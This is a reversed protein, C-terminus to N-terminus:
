DEWESQSSDDSSSYRKLKGLKEIEFHLQSELNGAVSKTTSRSVPKLVQQINQIGQISKMLSSHSDSDAKPPIMFNPLVPPPPPLSNAAKAVPIPPKPLPMQPNSNPSKLAQFKSMASLVKSSKPKLPPPPPSDHSLPEIEIFNSTSLQNTPGMHSIHVFDLPPGAVVVELRWCNM